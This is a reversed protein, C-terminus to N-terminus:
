VEEHRRINISSLHDMLKTSAAQLHIALQATAVEADQHRCAALIARHEDQSTTQYEMGSLYLVLYRGVNVHLREITNLLLPMKGARYLCAHFAWNHQGWLAPNEEVDIMNLIGDAQVLDVKTLHPLARELAISELAIRMTYIEDVEKPSLSSVFAGRNTKFTVLGESKLQVLAERIPVKSVGFDAAIKDQRLPEHSKYQGQLIASRLQNAILDPTSTGTMKLAQNEYDM